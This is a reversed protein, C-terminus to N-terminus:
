TKTTLLIVQSPRLHYEFNKPAVEAMTFEPSIDVPNGGLLGALDPLFVRQYDRHSKNLIALLPAVGPHQRMFCFVNFWNDQDIIRVPVEVNLIPLRQKLAMVQTIYGTLDIGTNEEWWDPRSTVVDPKRRFAYEFGTPIMLGRSWTLGFLLQRKMRAVDGQYETWARETDHSEPFSITSVVRAIKQQQEVGWPAQYDWWKSSNFLYDFGVKALQEVQQFSCGLSEALFLCDPSVARAKGILQQWLADPVLYAADCRCGDFGLKLYHTVMSSWFSWLNDRDRSHDNDVEALDGWEMWRGDHNAGPHVIEGNPHRKFWDPHEHVLTSDFATHNIVLDMIAAMGHKHCDDLFAKLQETPSQSSAHDVFDPNFKYYDKVAYLSGSFGPYHFPNVYIANFGMAQLRPLHQRWATMSGLLRPFLNYLRIGQRRDM